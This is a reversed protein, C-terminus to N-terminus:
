YGSGGSNTSTPNSLGRSNTTTPNPLTSPIFKPAPNNYNQQPGTGFLNKFGLWQYKQEIGKILDENLYELNGIYWPTSICEHLEWAVKSDKNKFKDYDEKSIEIYTYNNTRKSFYRTYSGVILDEETPFSYSPTPLFRTEILNKSNTLSRYIDNNVM